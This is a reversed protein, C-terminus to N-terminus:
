NILVNQRYSPVNSVPNTPIYFCATAMEILLGNRATLPENVSTAPQLSQRVPSPQMAFLQFIKYNKVTCSDRAPNCFIQLM